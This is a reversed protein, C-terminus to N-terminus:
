FEQGTPCENRSIDSRRLRRGRSRSRWCTVRPRGLSSVYTGDTKPGFIMIRNKGAATIAMEKQGLRGRNERKVAPAAPNKLKIWDPSRGSRYPAGKRKSVIGELGM